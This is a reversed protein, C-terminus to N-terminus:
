FDSKQSCHTGGTQPNHSPEQLAIIDYDQMEPNALLTQQRRAGKGTNYERHGSVGKVGGAM